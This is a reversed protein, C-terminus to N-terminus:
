YYLQDEERNKFYNRVGDRLPMNERAFRYLGDDGMVLDFDPDFHSDVLIRPRTLYGRKAKPGHWGHAVTGPVFGINCKITATCRDQFDLLRRRYGPQIDGMMAVAHPLLNVFAMAMLYDASGLIAFDLLGDLGLYADRTCAWGYGPHGNPRDFKTMGYDAQAPPTHYGGGNRLQTVWTSCFSTNILRRGEDPVINSNQDLDIAHHWLQVVAHSQLAEITETAWHPELFTIDGDPWALYHAGNALAARCGINLQNEKHWMEDRTRVKIHIVDPPLQLVHRRDGHALEVVYLTVGSNLMHEITELFLHYRSQFRLHNSYPLIVHLDRPNFTSRSNSLVSRGPRVM